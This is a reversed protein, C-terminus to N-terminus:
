GVKIMKMMDATCDTGIYVEFEGPDVVLRGDANYFALEEFGLEFCIRKEEGAKFFNKSFGKLERLPRAMGSCIDNIYCQSTEQGDYKGTNRVTASIIFKEGRILDDVSLEPISCQIDTYEFKSYSLGYGFPYMPTKECDHYTFDWISQGGYYSATRRGTKYYNYYIPIQGTSRPFTIPLKGSPNIKGYLISAVSQATRTGAHWAYVIADLYPEAEELAVPRGFCLVGIVPKGMRHLKKVYELQERPIEIDALSNAEGTVRYSEGLVVIVADNKHIDPLCDDWLYHSEPLQINDSEAKLAEAISEVRGIDGDLTWSGLLSRKEFAMPGTVVAKIDKRLPLIANKNKLLVMCEDSCIEAAEDHSTYDIKEPITYPNDFLGYILKIYLIRSVAEDISEMNVTGENILEEVHNTYCSDVMDMDIGANVALAAAEKEDEAIGQNVLQVVAGWDSIVFGEFGLEEKLLEYMIHRDASTGTGCLGNFSNMVTALGNKVASAFPRLYINRLTYESIESNGYDRGGDMAGYGIYHKACAAISNKLAYDEGQFGKVVAAAMQEGLYPDEGISEICRGWRPDRSIDLMPSFAWNIGDNSAEEAVCRYANQVISPNFTASLALPIPLVTEHGHIVDRGFIIPIGSPSEEVALRQLENIVSIDTKKQTDNGATNSDALIVSGVQGNHIMEKLEDISDACFCVQNMQGIKERLSMKAIIADIKNKIETNM